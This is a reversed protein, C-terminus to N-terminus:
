RKLDLFLHLLNQGSYYIIDGTLIDKFTIDVNDYTNVNEKQSPDM